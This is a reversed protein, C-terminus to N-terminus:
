PRGSETGGLTAVGSDLDVDWDTDSDGPVVLETRKREQEEVLHEIGPQFIAMLEAFPTGGSSPSRM